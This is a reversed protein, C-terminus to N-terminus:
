KGSLVVLHSAVMNLMGVISELRSQESCRFSANEFTGLIIAVLDKVETLRNLDKRLTDLAMRYDSFRTATGLGTGPSLLGVM